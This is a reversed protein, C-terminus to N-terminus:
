LRRLGHAGGGFTSARITPGSARRVARSGGLCVSAAAAPCRITREGLCGAGRKRPHGHVGTVQVGTVPPRRIMLASAVRGAGPASRRRGGRTRRLGDGPRPGAVGILLELSKRAIDIYAPVIGSRAIPRLRPGPACQDSTSAAVARTARSRSRASPSHALPLERHTGDPSGSSPRADDLNGVTTGDRRHGQRDRGEHRCAGSAPDAEGDGVALGGRRPPLTRRPRAPTAGAKRRAPRAFM